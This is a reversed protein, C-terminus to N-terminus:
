VDEFGTQRLENILKNENPQNKAWVDIASPFFPYDIKNQPRTIILVLGDDELRRERIMSFTAIREEATLHHVVEKFLIRDFLQKEENAAAWDIASNIISQDVLQSEKAGAIMDASPDIVSLWKANVASKLKGSFAGIGGGVDALSHNSM